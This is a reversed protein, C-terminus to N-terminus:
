EEVEIDYCPEVLSRLDPPLERYRVAGSRQDFEVAGVDSLKPLHTHTLTVELHERVDTPVEDRPVGEEVAAVVSALTEVDTVGTESLHYLLDRRRRDALLSLLDDIRRRTDPDATPTGGYDDPLEDWSM